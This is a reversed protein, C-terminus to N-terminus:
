QLREAAGQEILPTANAKPLTVVDEVTLDYTRDDIGMIEGVDDTIRVMTRTIDTTETTVGGDTSASTPDTSTDTPDSDSGTGMVAAAELTQEPDTSDPTPTPQDDTAPEPDSTTTEAAPTDQTTEKILELVTEKNTQIQEVITEFLAEEQTTLGATDVTYDAAALSAHDVIKGIRRDYISSAVDEATNIEDSLRTVEPDSFPDETQEAVRDRQAKLEAIYDGVEEYFSDRLEQLDDSDRERRQVSRLEDLNM